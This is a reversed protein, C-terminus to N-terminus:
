KAPLLINYTKGAKVSLSRGRIWPNLMRVMKYNTGHEKAFSALNSISQKVSVTRTRVPEYLEEKELRFGLKEANSM